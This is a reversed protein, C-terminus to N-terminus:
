FTLMKSMNKMLIDVDIATQGGNQKERPDDKPLSVPSVGAGGAEQWGSGPGLLTCAGQGSGGGGARM